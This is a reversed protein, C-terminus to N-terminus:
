GKSHIVVTASNINLNNNLHHGYFACLDMCTYFLGHKIVIAAHLLVAIQLAFHLKVEPFCKHVARCLLHEVSKMAYLNRKTLSLKCEGGVFNPNATGDSGCAM